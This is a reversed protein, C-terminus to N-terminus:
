KFIHDQIFYSKPLKKKFSYFKLYTKILQIHDHLREKIVNQLVPLNPFINKYSIKTRQISFSQESFLVFFLFM